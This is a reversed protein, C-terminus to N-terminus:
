GAPLGAAAACDAFVRWLLEAQRWRDSEERGDPLLRAYRFRKVGDPEGAMPMADPLLEAAFPLVEGPLATRAFGACVREWLLRYHGVFDRADDAGTLAVQMCCSTGIRGHVYRARELIPALRDAKAAVDGYTMEHGTYWHSLDANFRLAPLRETVDLTRRMDQTVTARHTEVLLPYAHRESAEIVPALLAYAAEDDEFGTGVHLTTLPYGAAKHAQAIRDADGPGDIRGMGVLPLGGTRVAEPDMTEPASHQLAEVGRARLAALQPGLGEPAASDPPLSWLCAANLHQVARMPGGPRYPHTM